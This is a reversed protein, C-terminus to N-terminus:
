PVRLPLPVRLPQRTNWESSMVKECLYSFCLGDIRPVTYFPITIRGASAQWSGAARQPHGARQIRAEGPTPLPRFFSFLLCTQEWSIARHSLGGRNEFLRPSVADLEEVKVQP